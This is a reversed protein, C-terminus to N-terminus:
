RGLSADAHARDRVLQRRRNERWTWVAHSASAGFPLTLSGVMLAIAGILIARSRTEDQALLVAIAVVYVLSMFVMHRATTQPSFALALVILSAWELSIIAPAGPRQFFKVGYGRCIRVVAVIVFAFLLLAALIAVLDPWGQTRSWRFFTSTISVSRNWAVDFIDASLSTSRAGFMKVLGGLAVRM